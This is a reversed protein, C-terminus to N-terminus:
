LTCDIERQEEEDERQMELIQLLGDDEEEFYDTKEM